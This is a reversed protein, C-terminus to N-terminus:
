DQSGDVGEPAPLPLVAPSQTLDRDSIFGATNLAKEAGERRAQKVAEEMTPAIKDFVDGFSQNAMRLEAIQEDQERLEELLRRM